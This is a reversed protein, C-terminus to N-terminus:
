IDVEDIGCRSISILYGYGGFTVKPIDCFHTCSKCIGDANQVAILGGLFYKFDPIITARNDRLAFTAECEAKLVRKQTKPDTHYLGFFRYFCEKKVATKVTEDSHNPLKDLLAKISEAHHDLVVVKDKTHPIM